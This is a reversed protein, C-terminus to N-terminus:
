QNVPLIIYNKTSEEYTLGRRLSVSISVSVASSPPTETETQDRQRYDRNRNEGTQERRYGHPPKQLVARMLETVHALRLEMIPAPRLPRATRRKLCRRRTCSM